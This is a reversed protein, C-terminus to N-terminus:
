GPLRSCRSCASHQRVFAAVVALPIGIRLFRRAFFSPLPCHGSRAYPYHVCLGSIVFFVIVAAVGDYAIAVPRSGSRGPDM